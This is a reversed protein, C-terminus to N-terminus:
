YSILIWTNMSFHRVCMLRFRIHFGAFTWCIDEMLQHADNSAGTEWTKLLFIKKKKFRYLCFHLVCFYRFKFRFWKMSFTNCAYACGTKCVSIKVGCFACRFQFHYEHAFFFSFLLLLRFSNFGIFRSINTCNGFISSAVHFSYDIKFFAFLACM